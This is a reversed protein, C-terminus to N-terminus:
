GLISERIRKLEAPDQEALRAVRQMDVLCTFEAGIRFGEGYPKVHMVTCLVSVPSAGERSFRIVFNTDRALKEKVVFSCGRASLDCMQVPVAADAANRALRFITTTSTTHVRHARRSQHHVKSDKFARAIESLQKASLM